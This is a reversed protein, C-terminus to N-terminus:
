GVHNRVPSLSLSAASATMREMSATLPPKSRRGPMPTTTVIPMTVEPIADQAEHAPITTDRRRDRM